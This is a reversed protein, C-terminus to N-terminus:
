PQYITHYPALLNKGRAFEVNNSGDQNLYYTFCIHPVNGDWYKLRFPGYIKGYLATNNATNDDTSRIRFYYNVEESWERKLRSYDKQKYKNQWDDDAERLSPFYGTLPATHDSVLASSNSYRHPTFFPQIGDGNNSFVIDVTKPDRTLRFIFDPVSGKGFPAVLSGKVLDYGFTGEAEPLKVEAEKAYMPIPNKIRKLTVNMTKTGISALESTTVECNSKTNYYGEKSLEYYDIRHNYSTWRFMGQEDTTGRLYRRNFGRVSVGFVPTGEDDVVLMYPGKPIRQLTDFPIFLTDAVFSIPLDAVMFLIVPVALCTGIQVPAYPHPSSVVTGIVDIDVASACYYEGNRKKITLLTGCGTLFLMLIIIISINKMDYEEL